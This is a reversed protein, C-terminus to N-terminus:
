VLEELSYVPIAEYLGSTVHHKNTVGNKSNFEYGEPYKITTMDLNTVIVRQCGFNGVFLYEDCDLDWNLRLIEEVVKFAGMNEM